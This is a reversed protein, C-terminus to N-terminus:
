NQPEVNREYLDAQNYDKPVLNIREYTRSVKTLRKISLDHELVGTIVWIHRQITKRKVDALGERLLVTQMSQRRGLLELKKM